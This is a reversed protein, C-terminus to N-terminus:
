RSHKVVRKRSINILHQIIKDSNIKNKEINIKDDLIFDKLSKLMFLYVEANEATQFINEDTMFNEVNASTNLINPSYKQKCVISESAEQLIDYINKQVQRSSTTSDNSDTSMFSQIKESSINEDEVTINQSCLRKTPLTSDTM